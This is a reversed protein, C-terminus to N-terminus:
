CAQALHDGAVVQGMGDNKGTWAAGTLTPTGTARTIYGGLNPLPNTGTASTGLSTASSFIWCESTTTARYWKSRHCLPILVM